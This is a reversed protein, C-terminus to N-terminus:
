SSSKSLSFIEMLDSDTMETLMKEGTYLALDALEKKSKIMEDIKEEFTGLTILRHVMVNKTQGIRFTRDTAQDEVAPNWWLDYHIVNTAATLNLGTGGAKLSVIMLRSDENTQFNEIMEERKNRTLSGHFFTSEEGLERRLIETLLDGMEKYQTFILAKEKQELVNEIISLAKDTKGSIARALGDKKTYHTPHNCIQKLATILKFINGRRNIGTLGKISKMSEQLVKEYLAAQEKTLYCYEDWVMKEPLDKIITKDTKLRRLIFPSTAKKLNEIKEIDKDREIPAAYRHQFDSLSGLYNKNIFDFISWLETIKNEMPTGTMAIYANSKISKVAISQATTPNKINQAEDVITLGWKREKFKELDNRLLGYTTIIVDSKLDLAREAGHFICVDLSPAFKECEKHWNGVLTTPCVVLVPPSLKKEEKLKVILSLVQITKGLGMDDAICSGFGKVTNSYLWKYGKEQYPRLDGKLNNSIEIDEPKVFEEIARSFAEDYDFAVDNYMGSFSSHILDIASIDEPLPTELKKLIASIQDQSLMVYKDKYKVVGDANEVLQLFEERSIKEDGIAIEYSFNLIENISFGAGNGSDLTKKLDNQKGKKVKAKLALKPKIINNLEKPIAINIGIKEFVSSVRAIISLITNVGYTPKFTGKSALIDKLVPMQESALILQKTLSLKEDFDVSESNLLDALEIIESEYGKKTIDIILSFNEDDIKEFRIIPFIDYSRAKLGDLWYSISRRVNKSGSLSKNLKNKVFYNAVPNSKIKSSKLFFLKYVFYNVLISVTKELGKETLLKKENNWFGFTRPMLSKMQEIYDQLKQDSKQYEYEIVFNNPDTSVAKPVFLLSKAIQVILDTLSNLFKFSESVEINELDSAFGFFYDFVVDYSLLLGEKNVWEVDGSESIEPVSLYDQKYRYLSGKSKLYFLFYNSPTVFFNVKSGDFCLYFNTNRAPASNDELIISEAEQEVTEYISVVKSKFDKKNLLPPSESIHFFINEIKEKPLIFDPYKKSKNLKLSGEKSFLDSIDFNSVTKDFKAIAGDFSEIDIGKLDFILYNDKDIQESIFRLIAPLFKKKAKESMCSVSIDEDNKPFLSVGIEKDLNEIFYDPIANLSLDYALIPTNFVYNKIKECEDETATKFKISLLCTKGTEIEIKVDIRGFEFDVGKIMSTDYSDFVYGQKEFIARLKNFWYFGWSVDKQLM